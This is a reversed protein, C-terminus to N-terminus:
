LVQGVKMIVMTKKDLKMPAHAPEAPPPIFTMLNVIAIFDILFCNNFTICGFASIVIFTFSLFTSSIVIYVINDKMM